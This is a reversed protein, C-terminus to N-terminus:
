VGIIEDLLNLVLIRCHGGGHDAALQLVSFTVTQLLCFLTEEVVLPIKHYVPYPQGYEINLVSILVVNLVLDSFTSSVYTFGPM